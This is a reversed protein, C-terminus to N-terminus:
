GTTSTIGKIVRPVKKKTVAGDIEKWDHTTRVKLNKQWIHELVSLNVGLKRGLALLAVMDKPFCKGGFGVDGDPGPVRLHLGIRPDAEVMRRVLDYEIKLPRALTYFENALIIKAALMVNSMYKALEATTPDTLFFKASKPLITQHLRKLKLAVRNDLSGIITRDPHLFDWFATKERLFEPNVAFTVRPYKKIFKATTGPLVTSKIVVIKRKGAGNQFSQVERAIKETVEEVVSLDIGSEDAFMPTPVCIFIFESETVVQELSDSKKYKDHFLIRHGGRAFGEGTAQGVIGYGIFGLTAM